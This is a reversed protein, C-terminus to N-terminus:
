IWSSVTVGFVLRNKIASGLWWGYGVKVKVLRLNFGFGLWLVTLWFVQGLCLVM